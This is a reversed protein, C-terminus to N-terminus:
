MGVIILLFTSLKTIYSLCKGAGDEDGKGMYQGVAATAAICLSNGPINIFNGVSKTITNLYEIYYIDM